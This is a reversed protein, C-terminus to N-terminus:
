KKLAALRALDVQGVASKLTEMPVGNGSASVVFREAVLVSFHSVDPPNPRGGV